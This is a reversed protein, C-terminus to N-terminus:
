KKFDITFTPDGALPSLTVSDKQTKIALWVIRKREKFELLVVPFDITEITWTGTGNLGYFSKNKLEFAGGDQLTLAAKDNGYSYSGVLKNELNLDLVSVLVVYVLPVMLLLLGSFLFKAGAGKKYHILGIVAIGIGVIPIILYLLVLGIWEM